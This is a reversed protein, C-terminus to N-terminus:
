AMAELTVVLTEAYTEFGLGDLLANARADGLDTRAQVCRGEAIAMRCLEGLAARANGTGRHAPHAFVGAQMLRASWCGASAAAVLEGSEEVGVVLPYDFDVGGAEWEGIEAAGFLRRLAEADERKAPQLRRAREDQPATPEKALLAVRAPGSVRAIRDGFAFRLTARDFVEAPPLREGLDLMMEVFVAPDPSMVTVVLAEGRRFLFLVNPEGADTRRPVVVTQRGDLHGPECDLFACWFEAAAELTPEPIM